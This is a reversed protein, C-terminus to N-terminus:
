TSRRSMISSGPRAVQISSPSSNRTPSLQGPDLERQHWRALLGLAVPERSDPATRSFAAVSMSAESGRAARLAPFDSAVELRVQGRCWQYYANLFTQRTMQPRVVRAVQHLTGSLVVVFAALSMM